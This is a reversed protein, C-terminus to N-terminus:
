VKKPSELNGCKAYMDILATGIKVDTLYGFKVVFGHIQGGLEINRWESCGDLLISLSVSDCAFGIGLTESFVNLAKNANGNRIYTRFSCDM